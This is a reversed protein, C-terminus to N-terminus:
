SGIKNINGSTKVKKNSNNLTNKWLLIGFIVVAISTFLFNM